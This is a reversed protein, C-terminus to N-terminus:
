NINSNEKKELSNIYKAHIIKSKKIGKQIKQKLSLCDYPVKKYIITNNIQQKITYLLVM